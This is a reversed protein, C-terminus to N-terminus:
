SNSVSSSSWTAASSGAPSASGIVATISLTTALGSPMPMVPRSIAVYEPIPQIPLRRLAVLAMQRGSNSSSLDFTSLKTRAVMLSRPDNAPRPNAMTTENPSLM